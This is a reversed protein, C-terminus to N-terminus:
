YRKRVKLDLAMSGDRQRTAELFVQPALTWRSFIVAERNATLNSEVAVTWHPGLQKVVTVRATANGTSSEAFPDIRVQDVALLSRARRDLAETLSRSLLAGAMGLGPGGGERSSRHGTALLAIVDEQPLPPDSSFTPILRDATGRLNIMIDYMDVSAQAQVDFHPAIHSPDAFTIVCRDIDYEVGQVTLQGGEAIEVKGVMGPEAPTGTIHLSASGVMRMFANRAEITHDAAVTLDLRPVDPLTGGRARGFWDALIEPLTDSRRLRTHEVKLDGRLLLTAPPGQLSWSGSLRPSLGPFLPFQVRSIRGALNLDLGGKGLLLSGSATGRGGLMRFTMGDVTARGPALLLTGKIGSVIMQSGPFRFSAESVDAIGDFRPHRISGSMELVGRVRGAPEWAPLFLQLLRADSSGTLHGALSGDLGIHATLFLEHGQTGKVWLNTLWFGGTDLAVKAPEALGGHVNGLALDLRDFTGSIRPIEGQKWSVRFSGHGRGHLVARSGPGGFRELLAAVSSVDITAPGTYLGDPGRVLHVRARAAGSLTADVDLRGPGLDAAATGGPGRVTIRGMLDHGPSWNFATELSLKSGLLAEAVPGFPKAAIDAAHLEGRIAMRPVNWSFRGGIGADCSLGHFSFVGGGLDITATGNGVREPGVTLGQFGLAWSGTPAAIPGRLGGTFALNGSVLNGAGLWGAIDAAPLGHGNITLDLQREGASPRWAIRGTIEGSGPGLRYAAHNVTLEGGAISADFVVHDLRIPAFTMPAAEIRFGVRLADWPGALSVQADCTGGLGPPIVRSRVWGNVMRALQPIPARRAHISWAPAWTGLALPGQWDVDASGIRLGSATFELVGKGDLGIGLTGRVPLEGALPTVRVTARGHGGKIWGGDWALDAGTEVRGRLGADPVGIHALFARLDIGSGDLHVRHPFPAGLRALTYTGRITGGFIEGHDLKGVLGRSSISVRGALNRVEFGAAVLRRSRIRTRILPRRQSSLSGDLTCVGHLLGAQDTFRDVAAMDVRGRWTLRITDGAVLGTGDLSIGASSVHWRPVTLTKGIAFRARASLTLPQLGPITLVGRPVIAFGRSLHRNGVWAARVNDARVGLGGPLNTGAVDIDDLALHRIRVTFWPRSRKAPLRVGRLTISVHRASVTELELSRHAMYLGGLTASAEAARCSFGRSEIDLGRVIVRPPFLGWQLQEVHVKAGTAAEIRGAGWRAVAARVRASTLLRAAGLALLLLFAVTALVAITTRRLHRYRV